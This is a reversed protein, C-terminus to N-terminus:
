LVMRGPVKTMKLKKLEGVWHPNEDDFPKGTLAGLVAPLSAGRDSFSLLFPGCTGCEQIGKPLLIPSSSVSVGLLGPRATCDKRFPNLILSFLRSSSRPEDIFHEHINTM